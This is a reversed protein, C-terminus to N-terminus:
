VETPMPGNSNQPASGMASEFIENGAHEPPEWSADCGPCRPLDVRRPSGCDPCPEVIPKRYISAMALPVGVGGFAAGLAWGARKPLAMGSVHGLWLSILLAALAHAVFVVAFTRSMIWSSSKAAQEIILAGGLFAPPLLIAEHEQHVINSSRHVRTEGQARLAGDPELLQFKAALYDWRQRVMLAITGDDAEAVRPMSNAQMAEIKWRGDPQCRIDNSPPNIAVRYRNLDGDNAIWIQDMKGEEAEAYGILQIPADIIKQIQKSALRVHYVGDHDAILMEPGGASDTPAVNQIMWADTFRGGPVEWANYVGQPTICAFSTNVAADDYVYFLGLRDYFVSKQMTLNPPQNLIVGYYQFKAIWSEPNSDGFLVTDLAEEWDEPIPRLPGGEDGDSPIRRGSLTAVNSGTTVNTWSAETEWLDGTTSLELQFTRYDTFRRQPQFFSFIAVSAVSVFFIAGIVLGIARTSSMSEPSSAPPLFVQHCYTHLAARTVIAYSLLLFLGYAALTAMSQVTSLFGCASFAVAAGAFMPISKTGIWKADRHVTWITAPYIAFFVLFASIVSPLVQVWDAPMREMGLWELHVGVCLLPPVVSVSFVTFSALLKAIYISRPSAPRHLLFGRADQRLEPFSQLLALAMAIVLAGIGVFLALPAEIQHAQYVDVPMVLWCLTGVLLLGLPAWRILKRFEHRYLAAAVPYDSANM